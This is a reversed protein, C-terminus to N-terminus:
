RSTSRRPEVHWALFRQTLRELEKAQRESLKLGKLKGGRGMRGAIRLVDLGVTEVRQASRACVPCLRGGSPISFPAGAKTTAPDHTGCSACGELVIGLGLCELFGLVYSLRVLNVDVGPAGLADLALETWGHLDPDGDGERSGLGALHLISRAARYRDLERALRRRSTVVRAKKLPPMAGSRSPRWEVDVTDFLDLASFSGNTPRFVGKALLHVRGARPTLLHVVLSSEGFQFRKLVIARETLSRARTRAPSM